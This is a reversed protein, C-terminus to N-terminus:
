FDNISINNIDDPITEIVFQTSQKSQKSQKSEKQQTIIGDFSTNNPKFVEELENVDFDINDDDEEEVVDEEDEERKLEEKLEQLDMGKLEPYYINKFTNKNIQFSLKQTKCIKNKNNKIKKNNLNTNLNIEDKSEYKSVNHTKKQKKFFNPNTKRINSITDKMKESLKRSIYIIKGNYNKELIDFKCLGGVTKSAICKYVEERTGIKKICNM